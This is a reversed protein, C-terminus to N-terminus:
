CSNFMLVQTVLGKEPFGVPLRNIGRVFRWYCNGIFFFGMRTPDKVSIKLLNTSVKCGVLSNSRTPELNLPCLSSWHWLVWEFHNKQKQGVSKFCIHGGLGRLVAEFTLSKDDIIAIVAWQKPANAWTRPIPRQTIPRSRSRNSRIPQIAPHPRSTRREFYLKEECGIVRSSM